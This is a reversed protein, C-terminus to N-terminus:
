ARLGSTENLRFLFVPREEEYRREWEASAAKAQAAEVRSRRIQNSLVLAGVSLVLLLFGAALALVPSLDHTAVV